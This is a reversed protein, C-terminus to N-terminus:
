RTSLQLVLPKSSLVDLYKWEILKELSYLTKLADSAIAEEARIEM